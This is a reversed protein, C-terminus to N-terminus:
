RLSVSLVPDYEMSLYRTLRERSIFGEELLILGIPKRTKRQLSLSRKVQATNIEKNELLIDLLQPNGM